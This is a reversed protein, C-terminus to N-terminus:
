ARPHGLRLFPGDWLLNPGCLTKKTAMLLMRVSWPWAVGQGGSAEQGQGDGLLMSALPLKLLRGVARAGHTFGM